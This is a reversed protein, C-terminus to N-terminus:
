ALVPVSQLAGKAALLAAPHVGGHDPLGLGDHDRDYDAILALGSLRLDLDGLVFLYANLVLEEQVVRPPRVPTVLDVSGQSPGRAM